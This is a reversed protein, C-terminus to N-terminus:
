MTEAPETPTAPDADERVAALRGLRAGLWAWAAVLPMAIWGIAGIGLGLAEFSVFGWGALMDGGRYVVTDVVNKGKFKAARGIGAYLVERAPRALAYNTSRRVAQAVLVVMVSPVWSVGALALGSVVPLAVLVATLGFRRLLRGTLLLQITVASANVVLDLGAFLTTREASDLNAAAIVRSQTFYLVTSVWTMCLLYGCLLRLRPHRVMLVFGQAIGGGLGQLPSAERPARTRELGVVAGAVGLLLVGCVVLLDDPVLWHVAAAALVPGILAGVTGGASILGFSRRSAQPSFVDVALSWFVSVALLNFASIWVFLGAAFLPRLGPPLLAAALRAVFLTLALVVFVWPVLVARRWRSVAWGYLPVLLVMAAFTGSFLWQMNEVGSQIGLEDRLPRVVYLAAMLLAFQLVSWVLPRADDNRVGLVRRISAWAL